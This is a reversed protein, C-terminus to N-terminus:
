ENSKHYRYCHNRLSKKSPCVKYCISCTIGASQVHQSEVHEAVNTKIKSQYYCQQCSWVTGEDSAIKHMM